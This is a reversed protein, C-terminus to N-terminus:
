RGSRGGTAVPMGEDTSGRTLRPVRRGVRGSLGDLVEELARRSRVRRDETVPRAGYRVQEFVGRLREVPEPDAGADVARAACEGPTTSRRDALGLQRVLEFYAAEVEDAPRAPGMPVRTVTGGAASPSSRGGLRTRLAGLLASRYRIALGVALLGALPVVLALLLRLLTALLARLADLLTRKRSTFGSRHGQETGAAVSSTGGGAPRHAVSSGSGGGAPVAHKATGAGTQLQSKLQDVTGSSIPLVDYGVNIADDPTTHVATTMSTSLVGLALVCCGLLGLTVLGRRNM